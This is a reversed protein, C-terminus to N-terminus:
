TASLALPTGAYLTSAATPATGDTTYRIEAGTVTTSLGVQLEGQFTQSPPTFTVAFAATAEGGSGGAGTQGSGGTGTGGSSGGACGLNVCALWSCLSAAFVCTRRLAPMAGSALGLGRKPLSSSGRNVAGRALRRGSGGPIEM